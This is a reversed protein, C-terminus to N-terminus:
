KKFYKKRELSENLAKKCADISDYTRNSIRSDCVLGKNNECHYIWEGNLEILEIYMTRSKITGIFKYVNQGDMGTHSFTFPVAFLDTYNKYRIDYISGKKSRIQKRKLNNEKIIKKLSYGTLGYKQLIDAILMDNNYDEIVGEVIKGNLAKIKINRIVERCKETNKFITSKTVNYKKALDDFSIGALYDKVINAKDTKSLLKRPTHVDALIVCISSMSCGYKDFLQKKGLGNKYDEIVQQRLSDTLKIYM